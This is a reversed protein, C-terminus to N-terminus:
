RRGAPEILAAAGILAVHPQVVVRTPIACLYDGMRDKAEFRRRFDSAKLFDLIDPAIGGSIYVGGRAGTALAFNGAASGLIACFRALAERALADDGALGAKTVQDPADIPAAAGAIDGLTKYLNLLGPGSLVHEVSVREIGRKNLRRLIEVEIDEEPAFGAHGGEGTLVAQGRGDDVLAAAGFGTGPGLIARTAPALGRLRPGVLRTDGPQLRPIALAQATFDNVLKVRTFGGIAALRREDFRWRRNNTFSVAGANIPGAAAIVAVKPPALSLEALYAALAAEGSRYHAAELVRAQSIRVRRDDDACTAIAFRAHTGGVDGVLGSLGVAM